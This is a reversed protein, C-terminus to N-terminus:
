NPAQHKLEALLNTKITVQLTESLGVNGTTWDDLGRFIASYAAQQACECIRTSGISADRRFIWLGEQLWTSPASTSGYLRVTISGDIRACWMAATSRYRNYFMNNIYWCLFLCASLKRCFESQVALEDKQPPPSLVALGFGSSRVAWHQPRSKM